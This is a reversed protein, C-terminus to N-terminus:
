GQSAFVRRVWEAHMTLEDKTPARDAPLIGAAIVARMFDRAASRSRFGSISGELLGPAGGTHFPISTAPVSLGTELHYVTHGVPSGHSVVAYGSELYTVPALYSGRTPDEPDPEWGPEDRNYLRGQIRIQVPAAVLTKM